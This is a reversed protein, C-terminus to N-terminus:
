APASARRRAEREALFEAVKETTDFSQGALEAARMEELDGLWELVKEKSDLRRGDPTITVEDATPGPLDRLQADWDEFTM